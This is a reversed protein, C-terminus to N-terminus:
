DERNLLVQMFVALSMFYAGADWKGIAVTIVAAVMNLLIFINLALKM